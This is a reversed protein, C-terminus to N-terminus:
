KKDFGESGKQNLIKKLIDYNYKVILIFFFIFIMTFFLMIYNPMINSFFIKMLIPFGLIIILLLNIIFNIVSFTKIIKANKSYCIRKAFIAIIINLLCITTIIASLFESKLLLYNMSIIRLIFALYSIVDSFFVFDSVSGILIIFASITSIIITIIMNKIISINM